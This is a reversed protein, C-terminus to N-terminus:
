RRGALAVPAARQIRIPQPVASLLRVSARRQPTAVGRNASITFGNAGGNDSPDDATEWNETERITMQPQLAKNLRELGAVRERLEQNEGWLRTLHLGLTM